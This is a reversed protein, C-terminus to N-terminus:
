PQNPASVVAGSIQIWLNDRTYGKLREKRTEGTVTEQVEPVKEAERGM